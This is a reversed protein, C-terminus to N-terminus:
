KRGEELGEGMRGILNRFTERDVVACECTNLARVTANRPADHLLAAEGFYSGSHLEAVKNQNVIIEVDGNEIVYFLDGMDGQTIINTGKLAQFPRMAQAIMYTDQDSLQSLAKVSKLLAQYRQIQGKRAQMLFAKFYQQALFYSFTKETAKVTAARPQNYLLAWDGFCNGPFCENVKKGDRIVDCHGSILIYFKDGQDGQKIIEEDKAFNVPQVVKAIEEHVSQPLDKTLPISRLATYIMKMHEEPKAVPNLQIDEVPPNFVVRHRRQM